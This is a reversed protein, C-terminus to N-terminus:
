FLLAQGLMDAGRGMGSPRVRLYDKWKHGPLAAELVRQTPPYVLNEWLYYRDMEGTFDEAPIAKIPSRGDVVVYEVRVGEGVDRGREQLVLGVEVHVPLASPNGDKKTERHYMTLDRSLQQSLRVDKLELESNLIRDRWERLLQRYNEVAEDEEFLLRRVVEYQLERALRITDGRKFELGKIEPKSDKTAATGEYHEYAGFYRKKRMLVLRSFKKEYALKVTNTVCGLQKLLGPYLEQNCWKVFATFQDDNCGKVFLSDTDAYISEMSWEQIAAEHTKLILWKGAQAVSEAVDRVYFRSFFSGVVGYFCNCIIKYAGSRRDAEKWKPTGPPEANKRKKWVGRLDLLGELAMPLLGRKNVDFVTVRDSLPVVCCGEPPKLEEQEHLMYSPLKPKSQEEPQVVLTEPSMNWSIITSPYLSAFDCVHVGKLIGKGKPEMVYAGEFKGDYGTDLKTPFHQDHEMGLKLLYGEVFSTPNAGRTDPLTSCTECVTFHLDLYGTKGEIDKELMVDEINYDILLQPNEQWVKFNDRVDFEELKSRGLVAHAVRDLAMSEKEEGSESVNMNFRKYVLLHDLWLWRRPEVKVELYESRNTLVPYDYHDLNWGCVQDYELLEDWLDGLLLAEAEDDDSELVGYVKTGEDDVLAWSLVRARGAIQAAFTQRADVELDIYCRRPRQLTVANDTMFRRVPNVDGEYITIGERDFAEGKQCAKKLLKHNRWQVRWWSGERRMAKIYKSSRLRRENERNLEEAKIFCSYEAGVYRRSVEGSAERRVLCVKDGAWFANVICYQGSTSGGSTTVLPPFTVGRRGRKQATGM